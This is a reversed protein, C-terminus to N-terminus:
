WFVGLNRQWITFYTSCTHTQLNEPNHCVQAWFKHVSISVHMYTHMGAILCGVREFLMPVAKNFGVMADLAFTSVTYQAAIATAHQQM